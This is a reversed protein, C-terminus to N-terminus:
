VLLNHILYRLLVYLDVGYCDSEALPDCQRRLVEMQNESLDVTTEPVCIGQQDFPNPPPGLHDVGYSLSPLNLDPDTAEQMGDTWIQLPTRNGESRLPHRNWARVFHHLSQNIRPLFIYHLCFLDRDDLPDLLDEDELEYFLYCFLQCVCRFTDRWLREIRQNHVSSGAIHSSRGTGRHRLM